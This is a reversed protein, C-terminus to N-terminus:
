QPIHRDGGMTRSSREVMNLWTKIYWDLGRNGHIGDLFIGIGKIAKKALEHVTSKSIPKLTLSIIKRCSSHIYEFVALVKWVNRNRRFFSSVRDYCYVLTLMNLVKLCVM